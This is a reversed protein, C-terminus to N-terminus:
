SRLGAIRAAEKAFLDISEFARVEELLLVRHMGEPDSAKTDIARETISSAAPLCSSRCFEDAVTAIDGELHRLDGNRSNQEGLDQSQNGFAPRL